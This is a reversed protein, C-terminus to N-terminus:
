KESKIKEITKESATARLYVDLSILDSMLMRHMMDQAYLWRNIKRQHVILRFMFRRNRLFRLTLRHVRRGRVRKNKRIRRM